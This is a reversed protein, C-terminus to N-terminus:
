APKRKLQQEIEKKPDDLKVRLHFLPWVALVALAMWRPMALVLGLDRCAITFSGRTHRMVLEANRPLDFSIVDHAFESRVWSATVILMLALCFVTVLHRAM